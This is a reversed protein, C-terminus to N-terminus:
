KPGIGREQELNKPTLALHWMRDSELDLVVPLAERPFNNLYATFDHTTFGNTSGGNGEILDDFKGPGFKRGGNFMMHEFLHAMGTQGSQENRSGARFFIYSSIVPASHDEHVLVRLGNPLVREAVPLELAFGPATAAALAVLAALLRRAM